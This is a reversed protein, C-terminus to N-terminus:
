RAAARLPADVLADGTREANLKRAEAQNARDFIAVTVCDSTVLAVEETARDAAEEVAFAEAKPEPSKMSGTVPSGFHKM